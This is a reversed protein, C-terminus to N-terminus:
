RKRKTKPTSTSTQNFLATELTEYGHGRKESDQEREERPGHREEGDGTGGKGHDAGDGSREDSRRKGAEPSPSQDHNREKEPVKGYEKESGSYGENRVEEKGEHREDEVM